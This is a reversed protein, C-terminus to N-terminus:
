AVRGLRPVRGDDDAPPDLVRLERLLRAVATRSQIEISAAPHPRVQGYRDRITLGEADLVECAQGARDLAECALRLLERAPPDDLVYREVM